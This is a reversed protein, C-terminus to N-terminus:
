DRNLLGPIGKMASQIEALLARTEETEPLGKVTELAQKCMVAQREPRSMRKACFLDSGEYLLKAMGFFFTNKEVPPEAEDFRAKAKVSDAEGLARSLALIVGRELMARQLTEREADSLWTGCSIKELEIPAATNGPPFGFSLPALAMHAGQAEFVAQTFEMAASAAMGRLNAADRRFGTPNVESGSQYANALDGLGKMVGASVVLHLVRARAAFENDGQSLERLTSQAKLMDGTRYSERAVAWFFAPSGPKIPPPGSGCGATLTSVVALILVARKEM